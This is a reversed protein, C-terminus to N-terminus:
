VAVRDFFPLLVQGPEFRSQDTIRQDVSELASMCSKGSLGSVIVTSKNQRLSSLQDPQIHKNKERLSDTPAGTTM